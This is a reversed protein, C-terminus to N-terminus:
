YTVVTETNPQGLTLPTSLTSPSVEFTNVLGVVTSVSQDISQAFAASGMVFMGVVAVLGAFRFGFKKM